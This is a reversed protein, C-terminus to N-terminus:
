EEEGGKSTVLSNSITTRLTNLKSNIDTPLAKELDLYRVGHLVKMVPRISSAGGSLWKNYNSDIVKAYSELKTVWCKHCMVKNDTVLAFKTVTEVEEWDESAFDDSQDVVVEQEYESWEAPELVHSRTGAACSICPQYNPAIDHRVIRRM